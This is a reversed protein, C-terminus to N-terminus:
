ACRGDPSTPRAGGCLWSFIRQMWASIPTGTCKTVRAGAGGRRMLRPTGPTELRLYQGSAGNSPIM